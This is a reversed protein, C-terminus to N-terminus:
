AQSRSAVGVPRPARGHVLSDPRARRATPDHAIRKPLSKAVRM